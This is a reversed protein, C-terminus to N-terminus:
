KKLTTVSAKWEDIWDTKGTGYNEKQGIDQLSGDEYGISLVLDPVSDFGNKALEYLQPGYYSAAIGANAVTYPNKRLEEKYLEFIDIGDETVFKGNMIKLDKLNYGTMTKMQNVLHFKGIKEQTFQSSDDSRSQMIHFFLERTNNDRNLISELQDILSSDKSGSVTLKFDNPNITFTLNAGTPITIGNKAFLENLQGNVKQRNFAKREAVEVEGHILPQDRFLSDRMDYGPASGNHLWSLEASYSANREIETLDHRFYPSSQNKYKDFIHQEPYKFGKNQENIKRYKEDLLQRRKDSESVWDNKSQIVTQEKDETNKKDQTKQKNSTTAVLPTYIPNINM